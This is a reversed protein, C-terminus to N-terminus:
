FHLLYVVPINQQAYKILKNYPSNLTQRPTSLSKFIKNNNSLGGLVFIHIVLSLEKQLAIHFSRWNIFGGGV